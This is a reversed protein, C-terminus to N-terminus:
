PHGLCDPSFPTLRQIEKYLICRIGRESGWPEFSPSKGAILDKDDEELEAVEDEEDLPKHFLLHCALTTYM